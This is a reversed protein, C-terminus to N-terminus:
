EGKGGSHNLYAKEAYLSYTKSIENHKHFDSSCM